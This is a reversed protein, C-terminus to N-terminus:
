TGRGDYDCSRWGTFSILILIIYKFTSHTFSRYSHLIADYQEQAQKVFVKISDFRRMDDIYKQMNHNFVEVVLVIGKLCRRTFSLPGVEKTISWLPKYLFSALNWQRLWKCSVQLIKMKYSIKQHLFSALNEDQLIAQALIKCSKWKAFYCTCSINLIKIKCFLQHLSCAHNKDQLILLALFKCMKCSIHLVNCYKKCRNLVFSCKLM